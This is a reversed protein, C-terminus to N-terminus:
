QLKYGLKNVIEKDLFDRMAFFDKTTYLKLYKKSAYFHRQKSFPADDYANNKNDVVHTGFLKLCFRNELDKLTHNLKLLLDEYKIIVTRPFQCVFKRYKNGMYNWIFLQELKDNTLPFPVIHKWRCISLYWSYPDKICLIYNVPVADNLNELDIPEDVSVSLRYDKSTLCNNNFVSNVRKRTINEPLGHKWKFADVLVVLHEFNNIMLWQLYNTGTRRLGYIKVINM